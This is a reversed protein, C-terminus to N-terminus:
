PRQPKGANPSRRTAPSRQSKLRRKLADLADRASAFMLITISERNRNMEAETQAKHKELVAVTAETGVAALGSFAHRRADCAEIATDEAAALFLPLAAVVKRESLIKLIASRVSGDAEDPYRKILFAVANPDNKVLESFAKGRASPIGECALQRVLAMAEATGIRGCAAVISWQGYDKKSAMAKLAGVSSAQGFTGLAKAVAMRVSQNRYTAMGEIVRVAAPDGIEELIEIALQVMQFDNQSRKICRGVAPIAMAARLSGLARLLAQASSRSPASDLERIFRATMDRAGLAGLAEIATERSYRSATQDMISKLPRIARPQGIAGLARIAAQQLERGKTTKSEIRAVKILPEVASDAKIRGLLRADDARAGPPAAARQLVHLAPKAAIAPMAALGDFADTGSHSVKEHAYLLPAVVRLDPIRGLADGAAWIRKRNSRNDERLIPLLADISKPGLKVLSDVIMYNARGPSLAAALAAAARTDDLRGLIQAAAQVANHNPSKLIGALAAIARAGFKELARGAAAHVFFDRDALLAALPEIARDDGIAGLLDIAGRRVDRQPANLLELLGPVALSGLKILAKGVDKHAMPHSDVMKLLGPLARMDGTDKLHGAACLRTQANSSSLAAILAVRGKEGFRSLAEAALLVTGRDKSEIATRTPEIAAEGLAM